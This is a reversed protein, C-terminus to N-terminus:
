NWLPEETEGLYRDIAAPIEDDPLKVLECLERYRDFSRSAEAEYGAWNISDFRGVGSYFRRTRNAPNTTVTVLRHRKLATICSSGSFKGRSGLVRAGIESATRDQNPYTHLSTWVNRLDDVPPYASRILFGRSASGSQDGSFAGYAIAPEGDRGTRGFGQVWDEVSKPHDWHVCWRISPHDIGLLFADTVVIAPISGDMFAGQAARKEKPTQRGHYLGVQYGQSQRLGYVAEATRVTACFIIGPEGRHRRLIDAVLSEHHEIIRLAINGRAVPVTIVLPDALRLTHILSARDQAPLTATCAYRLDAGIKDLSAGLWAYHVRFGREKLACHAEDVVALNVRGTLAATLERGKLSEPTTYLIGAWGVELESLITRKEKDSVDSNWILCPFGLAEVRRRQDAMLSRLPSVILTLGGRALGAGWYGASKGGGTPAIVLVDRGLVSAEIARRQHDHLGPIGLAAVLKSEDVVQLTESM